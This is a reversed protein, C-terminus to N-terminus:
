LRVNGNTETKVIKYEEGELIMSVKRDLKGQPLMIFEHYQQDLTRLNEDIYATIETGCPAEELVGYSFSFLGNSDKLNSIPIFLYRKAIVKFCSRRKFTTPKVRIEFDGIKQGRLSYIELEDDFELQSLDNKVILDLQNYQKNQYISYLNGITKLFQLSKDDLNPLQDGTIDIFAAPPATPATM